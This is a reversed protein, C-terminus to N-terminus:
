PIVTRSSLQNVYAGRSQAAGLQERLRPLSPTEQFDHVSLIRGVKLESAAELVAALGEASRLEVDVLTADPLFRLLLDRRRAQSLRNLGGEAPHRATVILPARLLQISSKVESAVPVLCDLRLEFFDPPHRLAAARSMDSASAIVAVLLPRTNGGKVSRQVMMDEHNSM